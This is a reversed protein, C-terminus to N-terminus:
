TLSSSRRSSRKHGALLRRRSSVRRRKDMRGLVMMAQLLRELLQRRFPVEMQGGLALLWLDSQAVFLASIQYPSPEAEQQPNWQEFLVRQILSLLAAALLTALLHCYLAAPKKYGPARMGYLSKWRRFMLEVQWRLRYAGLVQEPTMKTHPVNTVMLEWAMLRLTRAQVTHGRRQAEKRARRRRQQAVPEPVRVGVLRVPLGKDPGAARPDRLYVRIDLHGVDQYIRCLHEVDLQNGQEDFLPLPLWLPTLFFHEQQAIQVLLARSKGFGKDLLHLLGPRHSQAGPPFTEPARGQTFCFGCLQAAIVDLSLHLKLAAQGPTGGAAPFLEALQAPLRIVSSDTAWIGSFGAVWDPLDKLGPASRQALQHLPQQLLATLFDAGSRNLRVQLSQPKLLQGGVSHMDAIIQKYTKRVQALTAVTLALAFLYPHLKRQRHVFGVQRAQDLLPEPAFFRQFLHALEAQPPLTQAM